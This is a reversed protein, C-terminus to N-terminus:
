GFLGIFGVLEVAIGTVPWKCFVLISHNDSGAVLVRWLCAAWSGRRWTWFESMTILAWAVGGGSVSVHRWLLVTNRAMEGKELLFLIDKDSRHNAAPRLPLAGLANTGHGSRSCAWCAKATTWAM